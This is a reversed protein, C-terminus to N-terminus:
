NSVEEYDEDIAEEETSDIAPAIDRLSIDGHHDQKKDLYKRAQIEIKDMVKDVSEYMDKTTVDAEIISHKLSVIVEAKCRVSNEVGLVVRITSVKLHENSFIRELHGNIDAKLAESVTFHRGAIIIQM